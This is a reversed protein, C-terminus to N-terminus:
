FCHLCCVDIRGTESDRPLKTNASFSTYKEHQKKAADEAERFSLKAEGVYSNSYLTPVSVANLDEDSRDAGYIKSVDYDNEFGDQGIEGLDLNLQSEDITVDLKSQM